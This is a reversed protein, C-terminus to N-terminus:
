IPLALVPLSSFSVKIESAAALPDPAPDETAGPTECGEDVTELEGFRVSRKPDYPLPVPTLPASETIDPTTPPAPTLPASETIDPTTPSVSETIDPTTPSVSETIDPTTPPVTSNADDSFLIDDTQVSCDATSPIKSESESESEQVTEPPSSSSSKDAEPPLITLQETLQETLNEAVFQETDLAALIDRTLTDTLDEFSSTVPESFLLDEKNKEPEKETFPDESLEITPSTSKDVSELLELSGVSRDVMSVTLKTTDEVPVTAILELVKWDGDDIVGDGTGISCLLPIDANKLNGHYRDSGKLKESSGKLNDPNKLNKYKRKRKRPICLLSNASVM